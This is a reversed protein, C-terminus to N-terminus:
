AKGRSRKGRSRKRQPTQPKPPTKKTIRPPPAALDDLYRQAMTEVMVRKNFGLELRKKEVALFLATPVRVYFFPVDTATPDIERTPKPM